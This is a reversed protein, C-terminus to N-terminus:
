LLSFLQRRRATLLSLTPACGLSWCPSGPPRSSPQSCCSSGPSKPTVPPLFSARDHTSLIPSGLTVRSFKLVNWTPDPTLVKWWRCPFISSPKLNATDSARRYKPFNGLTTPPSCHPPTLFVGTAATVGLLCCATTTTTLHLPGVPQHISLNPSSPCPLPHLQGFRLGLGDGLEGM